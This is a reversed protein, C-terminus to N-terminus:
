GDFPPVGSGSATKGPKSVVADADHRYQARLQRVGARQVRQGSRHAHFYQPTLLGSQSPADPTPHSFYPSYGVPVGYVEMFANRYSVRQENEDVTVKSAEVQWMPASPSDGPAPTCVHCPSYVAHTLHTVNKSTKYAERAAFLSNDKLRARFQQVVGKEMQHTLWADTSFVVDGTPQLISVHGQAHVVDTNQNYDIRDALLVMNGQVVEVHGIATAVSHKEDYGVEQATLMVPQNKSVGQALPNDSACAGAAALLAVTVTGVFSQTGAFSHRRIM